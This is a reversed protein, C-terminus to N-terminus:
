HIIVVQQSGGAPMAIQGGPFLGSGGAGATGSRIASLYRQDMYSTVIAPLKRRQEATLLGSIKPAIKKLLDVTGERAHKYERYAEGEDFRDPLAALNRAV